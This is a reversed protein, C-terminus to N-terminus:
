HGKEMRSCVGCANDGYIWSGCECRYVPREISNTMKKGKRPLPKNANNIEIDVVQERVVRERFVIGETKYTKSTTAGSPEIIAVTKAHKAFGYDNVSNYFNVAEVANNFTKEVRDYFPTDLDQTIIVTYNNMLKIGKRNSGSSCSPCTSFSLRWNELNKKSYTKNHTM